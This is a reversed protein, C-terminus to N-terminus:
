RNKDIIEVLQAKTRSGVIKDTQLCEKFFLIVPISQINHKSILEDDSEDVNVEFFKVGEIEPEIENIIRTMTRCPACWPASFKVVVLGDGNVASNFEELNKIERM